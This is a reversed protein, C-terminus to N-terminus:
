RVIVYAISGYLALVQAFQFIFLRFFWAIYKGWTWTLRRKRWAIIKEEFYKRQSPVGWDYKLKDYTELALTGSM